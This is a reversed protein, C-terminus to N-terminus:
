DGPPAETGPASDWCEGEACDDGEGFSVGEVPPAWAVPPAKASPPSVDGMMLDVTLMSVSVPSGCGWINDGDVASISCASSVKGSVMGAIDLVLFGVSSAVLAVGSPKWGGVGGMSVERNADSAVKQVKNSAFSLAMNSM